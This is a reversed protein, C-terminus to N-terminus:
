RVFIKILTFLLLGCLVLVVITILPQMFSSQILPRVVETVPVLIINTFSDFIASFDLTYSGNDIIEVKEELPYIRYNLYERWLNEKSVYVGYTRVGSSSTISPRAEESKISPFYFSPNDFYDVVTVGLGYNTPFIFLEFGLSTFSQISGLDFSYVLVSTNNIHHYVSLSLIVGGPAAAVALSYDGIVCTPYEGVKFDNCDFFIYGNVYPRPPPVSMDYSDVLDNMDYLGMPDVLNYDTIVEFADDAFSILSFVTGFLVLLFLVFFIKKSKM